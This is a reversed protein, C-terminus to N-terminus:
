SACASRGCQAPRARRLSRPKRRQSAPPSIRRRSTASPGSWAAIPRDDDIGSLSWIGDHVPIFDLLFGDFDEPVTPTASMDAPRISSVSTHLPRSLVIIFDSLCHRRNGYRGNESDLNNGMVERMNGRAMAAERSNLRAGEGSAIGTDPCLAGGLGDAVGDEILAVTPALLVSLPGM